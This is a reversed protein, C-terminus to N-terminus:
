RRHLDSARQGRTPRLRVAVSVPMALVDALGAASANSFLSVSRWPSAASRVYFGVMDLQNVVVKEKV